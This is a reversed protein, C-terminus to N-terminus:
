EFAYTPDVYLDVIEIEETDNIVICDDIEVHPGYTFKQKVVHRKRFGTDSSEDEVMWVENILMYELNGQYIPTRKIYQIVKKFSDYEKIHGGSKAMYVVAYGVLKMAAM